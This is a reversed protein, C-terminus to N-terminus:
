EDLNIRRHIDRTFMPMPDRYGEPSFTVQKQRAVSEFESKATNAPPAQIRENKPSSRLDDVAGRKRREARIRKMASKLTELTVDLQQEALGRIIAELRWGESQATEIENFLTRLRGAKTRCPSAATVTFRPFEETAKKSDTMKHATKQRYATSKDRRCNDLMAGTAGM